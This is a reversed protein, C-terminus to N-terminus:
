VSGNFTWGGDRELRERAEFDRRREEETLRDPGNWNASSTRARFKAQREKNGKFVEEMMLPAIPGFVKMPDVLQQQALLEKLAPSNAWDPPKFDKEDDSDDSDTAIDPLEISDGNPYQPSSKHITAPTKGAALSRYGQQQSGMAPGNPQEAFPIRTNSTKALDNMHPTKPHTLHHQTTVATKLMSPVNHSLASMGYSPGFKSQGEQIKTLKMSVHSLPPSM